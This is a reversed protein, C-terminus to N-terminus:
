LVTNSKYAWILKEVRQENRHIESSNIFHIFVEYYGWNEIDEPVVMVSKDYWLEFPPALKTRCVFTLM